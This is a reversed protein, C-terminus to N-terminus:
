NNYIRGSWGTLIAWPGYDSIVQTRNHFKICSNKQTMFWVFLYIFIYLPINIVIYLRCSRPLWRRIDWFYVAYLIALISYFVLTGHTNFNGQTLPPQGSDMTYGDIITDVGANLNRTIFIWCSKPHFETSFIWSQRYLCKIFQM